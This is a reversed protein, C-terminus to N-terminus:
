GSTTSYLTTLMSQTSQAQELLVEVKSWAVRYADGKKSIDDNLTKIRDNMARIQNQYNQTSTAISGGLSTYTDLQSKLRQAIGTGAANSFLNAVQTVDTGVLTDLKSSDSLTMTGDQNITVGLSSLLNAKGASVGSVVGGIIQRLSSRLTRSSGDDVLIGRNTTQTGSSDTSVTTTTNSNLYSFVANYNTIFQQIATKVASKDAAVTMTLPTDSSAQSAALTFSVGQLADDVINSERVMDIGDLSFKANLADAAAGSKAFGAGTSTSATRATFDVGGFGLLSQFDGSFSTIASSAGSDDANIVLRSHTGDVNVVSASIQTSLVSDGNIANAIALLVDKNSTASLNVNVQRVASTGVQISFSYPTNGSLGSDASALLNGSLLMDNSAVQSVKLTHTGEQAYSTATATAVTTNSSSVAYSLFPSSTGQRAFSNITSSLTTLKSKLSNLASVRSNLDSVQNQLNTVPGQLTAEYNAVLADLASSSSSVSSVDAM